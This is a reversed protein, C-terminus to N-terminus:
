RGEVAVASFVGEHRNNSLQNTELRNSSNVHLKRRPCARENRKFSGCLLWDEKITCM